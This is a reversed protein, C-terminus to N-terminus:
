RRRRSRELLAEMRKLKEAHYQPYFGTEARWREVWGAIEETSHQDLFAAIPELPSGIAESECHPCDPARPDYRSGPFTVFCVPCIMPGPSSKRLSSSPKTVRPM